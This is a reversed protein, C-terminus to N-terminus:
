FNYLAVKYTTGNIIETRYGAVSGASGYVTSVLNFPAIGSIGGTYQQASITGTAISNGNISTSAGSTNTFTANGSSDLVLKSYSGSGAQLTVNTATLKLQNGSVSESLTISSSGAQLSYTGNVIQVGVSTNIKVYPDSTNGNVTWLDIESPSLTMAAGGSYSLTIGTALISTTYSGAIVSVGSPTVSTYYTPTAGISYGGSYYGIAVLSSTITVGFQGNAIAIGGSQLQLYPQSLVGNSYWLTVAGSQLTVSQASGGAFLGIGTNQIAVYPSSTLGSGGGSAAVGYLFIGSNLLAMVPYGSGQSLYVPGTFIASGYVLQNVPLTCLGNVVANAQLAGTSANIAAVNLANAVVSASALLSGDLTAAQNNPTLDFHDAGTFASAQQVPPPGGQPNTNASSVEYILYRFTRYTASNAPYNGSSAMSAGPVTIIAGPGAGPVNQSSYVMRGVYIGPAENAGEADPAPTWVGAALNGKQVTLFWYWLNPNSPQTLQLMYPLWASLGGAQQPYDILQGSIPDALFQATTIDGPNVAGVNSVTFVFSVAGAPVANGSYQGVAAWMTWSTSTPDTPVQVNFIPNITTTPTNYTGQIIPGNGDAHDLWVTVITNIAAVTITEDINVLVNGLGDQALSTLDETASIATIAGSYSPGTYVGSSPGGFKAIGKGM